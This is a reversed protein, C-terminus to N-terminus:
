FKRSVMIGTPSISLQTEGKARARRAGVAFWTASGALAAAGLAGYVWTWETSAREVVCLGSVEQKCSGSRLLGLSMAAVGGAGLAALASGGVITSTRLRKGDVPAPAPSRYQVAAEELARATAEREAISRELAEIRQRVEAERVPESTEDLYRRFAIVAEEERQLRAAAIGINYQLEARRSLEYAHRFYVLAREYEARDFAARGREFYDRGAADDRAPQAASGAAVLTVLAFAGVARALAM